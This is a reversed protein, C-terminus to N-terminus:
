SAVAQLKRLELEVGSPNLWYNRSFFRAFRWKRSELFLPTYAHSAKVSLSFRYAEDDTLVLTPTEGPVWAEAYPFSSTQAGKSLLRGYLYWSAAYELRAHAAGKWTGTSVSRAYMLYERLLKPGDNKLTGTQLQEPQLSCVVVIKERARTVAVNLRNEGGAMNLSGFQLSVKGKKDPAYGVSFIIVDKEDGQVNEINKIMLSSPIAQKADEFIEEVADMVVQQQPANFTIVGIEKEPHNVHWWMVRRAVEMAELANTQNEWIGAVTHFEIPPQDRRFDSIDPLMKLRGKYFHQNSFDILARSRSRYHGQLHVTPLFRETLELLSDVETEPTETEDEFRSQYLDSPKLQRSDGAVVVQKGRAMAPIGRESFCQSAEDFIVLDFVPELPFLASVSDPSAMWCPMLDFLEDKFAGITKRLPWVKRKKTVQHLLDRYTVPNNLRNYNMHEYARERIRLLLLQNTLRQKELVHQQLSKEMEFFQQSSVLRLVPYKAELHQLWELRLSNQLVREFAEESWAGTEAFLKEIVTRENASLQQKLTDFAALDEYDRKIAAVLEAKANRDHLLLRIQYPTLFQEWAIRQMPIESVLMSLSDLMEVFEAQQFRQANVKLDRLTNFLSKARIAKKYDDFWVAWAAPDLSEPVETLWPKKRITTVHHEFNLRNDLRAELRSLDARTYALGNHILVRKLWFKDESFWEWQLLRIISRKRAEMRRQLVQQFKGLQDGPLSREMGEGGFCNMCLLRLNDFWLAGTEEEKEAVISQFYQFVRPKSALASLEHVNASNAQLVEGGELTLPSGLWKATAAGFEDQMRLVSDIVDVRRKIESFDTRVFPIRHRWQYAEHELRRAFRTYKKVLELLAPLAKFDFFSYEQKLNIAPAEPDCTLYLEKASLGCEGDHYLANRYDDLQEVITDVARSALVFNREMQIADVSRNLRRFDDISEIQNAITAYISSRDNRFDHVLGIFNRLGLRTLREHVVDLAVRKQCVLLVRKGTAMADSILNGILQSKGTGPPGQVVISRGAKVQRVAHEQWEDIELPTFFTEEKLTLTPVGPQSREEFFNELSLTDNELLSLYDPVLQSGAQPFIGLVAQQQLKLIGSAHKEEFENKKFAEFPHLVDSFLDTNFNVELRDKLLQYLQTRFVTSDADWEDFSFELLEEDVKLKNGQAFALLFSKNFTVGADERLKLLWQGQQLVLEVPFFLLPCRVLTGDQLAGQVFPWGVHLDNTGREDFLFQDLRHLKKLKLSTRSVAEMRSDLAPCVRAVRGGILTSVISFASEGNLFSFEQVDILQDAYLRPLFLLRNGAGVHTLRRLFHRLTNETSHMAHLSLSKENQTIHSNKLGLALNADPLSFEGM